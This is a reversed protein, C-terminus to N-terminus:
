KKHYNKKCLEIAKLIAQERAHKYDFYFLEEDASHFMYDADRNNLDEIVFQFKSPQLEDNKYFKILSTDVIIWINYQSLFWDIVQQWLPALITNRFKFIYNAKQQSLLYNPKEFHIEGDTFCALCPEDFGLEKLKLAIEFTVFQEKM